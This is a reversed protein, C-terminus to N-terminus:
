KKNPLGLLREIRDASVQELSEVVLDAEKLHERPHTNTVAICRTGARKAAAVGAVADEIVVCDQPPVGLREAALLFIQPDPKGRAVDEATVVADLYRGIDLKEILLRLNEVPASSAVAMRFGRERLAQMLPLVGPFAAVHRRAETRFKEEKEGSIAQMEKDPVDEGMVSRIINDNRQGFTRQFDEKTFRVGREAFAAQWARFHLTATDAVVGDMDWLVARASGAPM